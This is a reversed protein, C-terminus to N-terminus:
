RRVSRLEPALLCGLEVLASGLRRRAGGFVLPGKAASNASRRAALADHVHRPEPVPGDLQPDYYTWLHV